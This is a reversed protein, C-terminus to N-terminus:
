FGYSDGTESPLYVVMVPIIGYQGTSKWGRPRKKGCIPCPLGSFLFFVSIKESFVSFDKFYVFFYTVTYHM